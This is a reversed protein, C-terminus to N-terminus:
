RRVLAVAAGFMRFAGVHEAEGLLSGFGASCMSCTWRSVLVSLDDRVLLSDTGDQLTVSLVYCGRESPFPWAQRIRFSRM